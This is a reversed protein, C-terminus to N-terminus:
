PLTRIGPAVDLLRTRARVATESAPVYETKILLEMLSTLLSVTVNVNVNVCVQGALTGPVTTPSRPGATGGFKVFTMATAAPSVWASATLASPVRAAHPQARECGRKGHLSATAGLLRLLTTATFTMSEVNEM